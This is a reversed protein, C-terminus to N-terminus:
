KAYLAGVTFGTDDLWNLRNRLNRFGGPRQEEDIGRLHRGSGGRSHQPM